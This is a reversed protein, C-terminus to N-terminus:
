RNERAGAEYGLAWAVAEAKTEFDSYCAFGGGYAECYRVEWRGKREVVVHDGVMEEASM